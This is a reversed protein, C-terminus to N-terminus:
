PIEKRTDLNYIYMSPVNENDKIKENEVALQKAETQLEQIHLQQKQLEENKEHLQKELNYQGTLRLEKVVECVWNQFDEAIPKRSKFLIKYLGKETLFTVEQSGGNTLTICVVKETEDYDKINQRINSIDLVTGIDSSRFLPNEHTGKIVIETHLTNSNFAKVIEM